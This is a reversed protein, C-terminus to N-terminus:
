NMNIYYKKGNEDPAFLTQQYKLFQWRWLKSVFSSITISSSFPHM